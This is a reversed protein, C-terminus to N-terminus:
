LVCLAVMTKDRGLRGGDVRQPYPGRVAGHEGADADEGTLQQGRRRRVVRVGPEAIHDAFRHPQYVEVIGGLPPGVGGVTALRIPHGERVAVRHQEGGLFGQGRQVIEDGPSRPRLLPWGRHRPKPGIQDDGACGGPVLVAPPHQANSRRAEARHFGAVAAHEGRDIRVGRDLAFLRERRQSPM